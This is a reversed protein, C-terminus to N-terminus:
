VNGRATIGRIAIETGKDTSIEIEANMQRVMPAVM